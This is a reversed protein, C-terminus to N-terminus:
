ASSEHSYPVERCVRDVGQDLLKSWDSRPSTYLIDCSRFFNTIIGFLKASPLATCSYKFDVYAKVM